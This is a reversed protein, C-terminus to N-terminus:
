FTADNADVTEITTGCIADIDNVTILDLDKIDNDIKQKILTDYEQLREFSIYKSM